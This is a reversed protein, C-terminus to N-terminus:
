HTVFGQVILMVHVLPRAALEAGSLWVLFSHKSGTVPGMPYGWVGVVGVWWLLLRLGVVWGVV